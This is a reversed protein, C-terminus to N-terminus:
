QYNKGLTWYFNTGDYYWNLVDIASATTSLSISTGSGWYSNVKSNAPLTLTRNGTADQIVKLTGYDGSAMNSISLTRNGALTVSANYGLSYNWSVTTADTLTIPTKLPLTVWTPASTGNSQLLQGSTGASTSAVATTSASYIVGGQTLSPLGIYKTNYFNYSHNTTTDLSVVGTSNNYQIPATASIGSRTIYNSGNTLQNNNTPILGAVSDIGKQRWARTSIITTDVAATLANTNSTSDILVGVGGFVTKINNSYPVAWRYGSGINSNTGGSGSTITGIDAIGSTDSYYTTGNVKIGAVLIMSDLVANNPLRWKRAYVTNSVPQLSSTISERTFDVGYGHVSTYANNFNSGDAAVQVAGTNLMNIVPNGSGDTVIMGQDTTNGLETVTQLDSTCEIGGGTGAIIKGNADTALGTLNPQQLLYVGDKKVRLIGKITTDALAYSEVYSSVNVGSERLTNDSPNHLAIAKLGTGTGDGSYAFVYPMGHAVLTDTLQRVLVPSHNYQGLENIIVTKGTAINLAESVLLISRTDITQQTTDYRPAYYHFNVYDLYPMTDYANVVSDVFAIKAANTSLYSAMNASPGFEVDRIINADATRSHTNFYNYAWALVLGGTLGGNATKIAGGTSDHFMRIAASLEKIYDLAVPSGYFYNNEENEFAVLPVAYGKLHNTYFSRLSTMYGALESSTPYTRTGTSSPKWNITLQVKYGANSYNKFPYGTSTTLIHGPSRIWKMKLASIVPLTGTSPDILAGIAASSGSTDQATITLDNIGVNIQEPQNFTNGIHIVDPLSQPPSKADILSDLDYHKNITDILGTHPNFWLVLNNTTDTFILADGKRGLYKIFGTDHAKTPDFRPLGLSSDAFFSKVSHAELASQLAQKYRKVQQVTQASAAIASLLFLIIFLKKM